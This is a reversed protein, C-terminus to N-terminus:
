VPDALATSTRMFQLGVVLLVLAMLGSALSMFGAISVPLRELGCLEYQVFVTQSVGVLKSAGSTVNIALQYEGVDFPPFDAIRVASDTSPVEFVPVLPQRLIERDAQMIVLDGQLGDLLPPTINISKDTSDIRLLLSEGHAAGYTQLFPSTFRSPKSFDVPMNVPQATLAQEYNTSLRRWEFAAYISIMAFFIGLIMVIRRLVNRTTAKMAFGM